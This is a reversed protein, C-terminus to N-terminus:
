ILSALTLYLLLLYLWTGYVLSLLLKGHALFLLQTLICLASSSRTVYDTPGQLMQVCDNMFLVMQMHVLKQDVLPRHVSHYNKTTVSIGPHLPALFSVTGSM